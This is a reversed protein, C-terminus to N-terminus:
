MDNFIIVPNDCCTFFTATGRESTKVTVEIGLSSSTSSNMDNSIQIAYTSFM